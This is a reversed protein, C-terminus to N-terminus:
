IKRINEKNLFLVITGTNILKTNFDLRTLIRFFILKRKSKLFLETQFINERVTIKEFMIQKNNCLNFIYGNLIAYFQLCTLFVM